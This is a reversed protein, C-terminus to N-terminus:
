KAPSTGNRRQEETAETAPPTTAPPTPEAPQKSEERGFCAAALVVFAAARTGAGMGRRGGFTVEALGRGLADVAEGRAAPAM